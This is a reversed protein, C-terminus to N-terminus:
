RGLWYNVKLLFVNTGATSLLRDLDRSLAITRDRHFATRDQSWVLFLTSGPRYEWRLVLNSRLEKFNFNPDDFSFDVSGDGDRDVRYAEEVADYALKAAAYTHFRDDFRGARPDAVEMFEKYSGASVFPQAYLQLALDPTFTYSLRATLAASTQELRGKVYRTENGDEVADVYQSPNLNWRVSPDLSLQVRRSPRVNLGARLSLTRGDTEDEFSFEGGLDFSVDKRNDSFLRFWARVLGPEVIAPGGRLETPSLAEFKRAVGWEGGWFNRLQFGGSMETVALLREGGYSWGSVEEVSVEWRRFLKGARFQEYGLSAGQFAFDASRQFGADNVEFGPSRFHGAVSWRWHGGGIKQLLLNGAIGGLSTRHPDYDLHDADPRQFYRASSRQVEDMAESSGRVYSGLLWGRLEYNGGGFRHRADLGGAYASSPLFDLREDVLHRNVATFVGGVASRGQRLDRIVRAVAYDTLPEVDVTHHLGDEGAYLAKETAAVANLIGVSWGNSTKGSLKAAGLITTNGPAKVYHAEDPPSGQPPRGVRRSYFLLEGTGSGIAVPFQFIEAGEIFLPRKEPYFTEFATLNVVSPDAEVQGFDPNLTLSLTVDSTIGYKIDAGLDGDVNNRDYFPDGAEGPARTVQAVSYPLVELRRPPDLHRLGHLDGFASVFGADEPTIPAWFAAEGRRAIVRYFQVGWVQEGDEHRSGADFRLQSIPIRMETTWGASDVRAVAEWVPDWSGDMETDNFALGDVRVGRPNVGFVFATRRDRYSDFSAFFWDSHIAEDRRALFAVISDPSSDYMRAGLYIARDTYLIRVESRETAKAGADPACQTFATAVEAEGWIAEELRGDLTPLEGEIRLARLTPSAEQASQPLPARISGAIEGHAPAVARLLLALGGPLLSKRGTM